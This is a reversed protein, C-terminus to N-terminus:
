IKILIKVIYIYREGHKICLKNNDKYDRVVHKKDHSNKCLPCLNINCNCCIYIKNNYAELKNSKCQNCLIEKENLKQFDNFGNIILNPYCHKNICNNLTIKYNDM